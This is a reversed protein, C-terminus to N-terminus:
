FDDSEERNDIESYRRLDREAGYQENYAPDLIVDGSGEIREDPDEVAVADRLRDIIARLM